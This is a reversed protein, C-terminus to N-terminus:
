LYQIKILFYFVPTLSLKLTNSNKILNINKNEFTNNSLFINKDTAKNISTSSNCINPKIQKIADDLSHKVFM